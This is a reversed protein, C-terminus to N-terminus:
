PPTSSCQLLGETEEEAVAAEAVRKAVKDVVDAEVVVPLGVATAATAARAM